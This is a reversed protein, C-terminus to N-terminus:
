RHGDRRNLSNVREYWAWLIALVIFMGGLVGILTLLDM